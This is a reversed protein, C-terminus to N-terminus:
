SPGQDSRSQTPVDKGCSGGLGGAGRGEGVQMGMRGQSLMKRLRGDGGPVWPWREREAGQVLLETVASSDQQQAELARLLGRSFLFM